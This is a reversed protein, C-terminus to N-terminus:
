IALPPFFMLTYPLKIFTSELKKWQPNWKDPYGLKKNKTNYYEREAAVEDADVFAKKLLKKNLTKGKLEKEFDLRIKSVV